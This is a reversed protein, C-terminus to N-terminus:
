AVLFILSLAQRDGALWCVLALVWPCGDDMQLYQSHLTQLTIRPVRRSKAQPRKGVEGVRSRESSM